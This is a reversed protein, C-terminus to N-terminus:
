KSKTEAEVPITETPNPNQSDSSQAAGGPSGDPATADPSVSGSAASEGANKIEDLLRQCAALETAVSNDGNYLLLAGKLSEAATTTRHELIQTEATKLLNELLSRRGAITQESSWQQLTEVLFQRLFRYEPDERVIAEVSELQLIAELPSGSSYKEFARRILRQLESQASNDSAASVRLSRCFEFQDVQGIMRRIEAHQERFADDAILPQLLDDRARLWASGARYNLIERARELQHQPTVSNRRSMYIGGVIILGLLSVLVITNDFFRAIPSKRLTEAADNRLLDRVMTAPGPSHVGPESSDSRDLTSDGDSSQNLSNQQLQEARGAFEIRSRVQELRRILVLADPLRKGPDKELLQCVLEELLRPIEPVYRSPKDYQAFQHKQLVDNATQGTFPPKGTLMAYMVVGLSYLDSRKTARQGRAQEPSMYEATGVIGGTRTLRTSAFVHAVGFDTLKIVRDSTLMLNSPKLDRHIIGADHAAKLASATQLSLEIVEAWPIRRRDIIETTLTVGDVYEMAYYYSGDATEGNGFLQVIHRNSLQKLAGIERSFRQVFGDERAMSAPLVKIAAVQGTDSHTGRYVNGMGGAGIKRDIRYPGIVEPHM